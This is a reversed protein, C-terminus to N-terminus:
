ALLGFFEARTLLDHHHRLELLLEFGKGPRRMHLPDSTSEPFSRDDETIRKGKGEREIYHQLRPTEVFLVVDKPLSRSCSPISTESIQMHGVLM